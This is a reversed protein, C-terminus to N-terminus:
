TVGAHHQDSVINTLTTVGWLFLGIDREFNM